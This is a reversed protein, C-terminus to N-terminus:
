RRDKHIFIEASSLPRFIVFSYAKLPSPSSTIVSNYGKLPQDEPKCKNRKIMKSIVISPGIMNPYANTSVKSEISDANNQYWQKPILITKTNIKTCNRTM